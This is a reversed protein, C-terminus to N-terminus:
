FIMHRGLKFTKQHKRPTLGASIIQQKPDQTKHGRELPGAILTFCPLELFSPSLIPTLFVSISLEVSHTHV